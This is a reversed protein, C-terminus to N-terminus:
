ALGQSAQLWTNVSNNTSVSEWATLPPGAPGWSARVAGIIGGTGSSRAEAAPLKRSILMQWAIISTARFAIRNSSRRYRAMEIPTLEVSEIINFQSWNLRCGCTPEAMGLDGRCRRTLASGAAVEGYRAILEAAVLSVCLDAIWTVLVINIINPRWDSTATPLGCRVTWYGAVTNLVM